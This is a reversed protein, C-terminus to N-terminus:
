NDRHRVDFTAFSVLVISSKANAVITDLVSRTSRFGAEPPPGTWVLSVKQASRGAKSTSTAARIAAAVTAGEVNPTSSWARAINQAHERYHAVPNANIPKSQTASSWAGANEISRAGAALLEGPVHLAAAVVTDTITDSM